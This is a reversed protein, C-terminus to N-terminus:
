DKKTQISGTFLWKIAPKLGNLKLQIIFSRIIFLLTLTALGWLAWRLLGETSSVHPLIFPIGIATLAILIFGVAPFSVAIIPTDRM